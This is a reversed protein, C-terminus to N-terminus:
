EPSATFDVGYTMEFLNLIRSDPEFVAKKHYVTVLYTHGTELDNVSYGGFNNTRARFVQGTNVNRITVLVSRHPRGEATLVRGGISSTAATVPVSKIAVAAMLWNAATTMTWGMTVEPSAGAKTSSAGVDFATSFFRRGRTCTTEVADDACVRQPSDAAFFGAAPTSGLVDLVIDGAAGDFVTVAPNADSGSSDRFVGNPATQNVGTFSLASGVAYATAGPTLQVEVSYTGPPPLTAETMRYIGVSTEPGTFEGIRTLAVGNFTVNPIRGTAVPPGPLQTPNPCLGGPCNFVSTAAVTVFLARNLGGGITHSFTVSTVGANNFAGGSSRNDELVAARLSSVFVLSCFFACGSLLVMLNVKKLM